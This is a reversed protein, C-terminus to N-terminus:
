SELGNEPRADKVARPLRVCLQIIFHDHRKRASGTTRIPTFWDDRTLIVEGELIAPVDKIPLSTRDGTARVQISRPMKGRPTFLPEDMFHIEFERTLERWAIRTAVRRILVTEGIHDQHV